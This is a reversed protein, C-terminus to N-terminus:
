SSKLGCLLPILLNLPSKSLHGFLIQRVTNMVLLTNWKTLQELLLRLILEWDRLAMLEHM